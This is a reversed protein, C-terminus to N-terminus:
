GNLDVGKNIEAIHRKLNYGQKVKLVYRDPLTIIKNNAPIRAQRSPKWTLDFDLFGALRVSDGRSLIEKVTEEFDEVIMRSDKLTYGRQAFERIFGDTLVKM